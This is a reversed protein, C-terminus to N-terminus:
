NLGNGTGGKRLQRLILRHDELVKKSQSQTPQLKVLFESVIKMVSEMLIHFVENGTARSLILHFEVNEKTAPEGCALREEARQISDELAVLDQEVKRDVAYALIIKELETRVETIDKISINRLGIINPISTSVKETSLDSVFIGGKSGKKV